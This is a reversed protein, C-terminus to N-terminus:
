PADEDQSLARAVLRRVRPHRLLALTEGREALRRVEPDQALAHLEPDSRLRELRPGVQALTARAADRFAGADTVAEEDVLGLEALEHRLPVDHALQVFSSRQLAADLSGAEVHRWFLRDDALRGVHPHELLSQLGELSEAPRALTRATVRAAPNSAGLVARVGGEVAARTVRTVSSAPEVPRPGEDQLARAADLWLALWALLLAFLGGRLAGFLSGGLRDVVPRPAGGRRRAQRRGLAGGIVGLLAVTAFFAATGALPPGLLPPLSTAASVAEGLHVAALWAAAWAAILTVLSFASALWGRWCGWLGFLAVLALALVDRLPGDAGM